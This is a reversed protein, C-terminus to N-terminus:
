SATFTCTALNSVLGLADVQGAQATYLAGATLQNKATKARWTFAPGAGGFATTTLTAALAGSTGAGAFISVTVTGTNVTTTGTITNHGGGGNCSAVAIVPAVAITWSATATPTLVSLADLARVTFTHSGLALGSYTVSGGNCAAFAGADLQCQFASFAVHTFTFTASTASTVSAPASTITPAVTSITWTYTAAATAASAADVAQVTFTHSGDALNVNGNLTKLNAPSTCATFAGADLKCQFSAYTTHTFAITATANNASPSVPKAGIVPAATSVTWTYSAAATAVGAADIAQVSFIHVGDALNVNGNLVRLNAPSTCATFAGLDLKCQFSAYAAQTFAITATANNASPNSPKAGIAPVATNVTWTYSVTTTAVGDADIAGVSFTHSGDALNVNGNLTKLNAPSSCTAFTGADLKCKFSAYTGHSFAITASSNNASPNVPKAGLTPALSTVTWTSSSSGTTLGDADVARVSFTHSGQALDANANLARLDAPSTCATFAGADLKCQFATYRAHTFAISPAFSNASPSSPKAGLVPVSTDITWAYSTAPGTFSGDTARVTFTHAASALGIFSKPSACAAFAGADLRCEYGTGNGGSFTFTPATTTSAPAPRSSITPAILANVLDNGSIAAATWSRFSATVRYMYVGSATVTDTCTLTPASVTGCTGGTANWTSGTNSSREVRYSVLADLAPNPPSVQSATWSVPVAGTSAAPVTVTPASLTAVSLAASGSGAATWFAAATASLTLVLCAIMASGRRRNM